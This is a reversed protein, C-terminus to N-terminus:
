PVETQDGLDKIGKELKKKEKRLEKRQEKLAQVESEASEALPVIIGIQNKVVPIQESVEDYEFQQKSERGISVSLDDQVKELRSRLSYHDIVSWITVLVFVFLFFSLVASLCKQKGASM